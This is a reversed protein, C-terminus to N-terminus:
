KAFRSKDSILDIFKPLTHTLQDKFMGMDNKEAEQNLSKLKAAYSLEPENDRSPL